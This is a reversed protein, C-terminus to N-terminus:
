YCSVGMLASPIQQTPAKLVIQLSKTLVTDEFRIIKSSLYNNKQDYLLNHQDDYIMFDRVCFPMVNEPHHILVTEMPHDFDTDFFLRLENIVQQEEWALTLTPTSDSFDAVWANPQNTPRFLGNVINESQFVNLAPEFKLALNRGDPRRKPTWFEFTDVGIDEIPAQKGYNSVAPNITNFVSLIGTVRQDSYQLSVKENKQIVLFTYSSSGSCLSQLDTSSFDLNVCNRGKQLQVTQKALTVDPTHNNAKSSVRLEIELTTPEDSFPHMVVSKPSFPLMQAVSETM